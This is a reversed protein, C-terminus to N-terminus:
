VELLLLKTQNFEEDRTEIKTDLHTEHIKAFHSKEANPRHTACRAAQKAVSFITDSKKLM